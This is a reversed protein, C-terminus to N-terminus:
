GAYVINRKDKQSSNVIKLRERKYANINLHEILMKRENEAEACFFKDFFTDTNIIVDLGGLLELVLRAIEKDDLWIDNIEYLKKYAKTLYELQIPELDHNKIDELMLDRLRFFNREAKIICSIDAQQYGKQLELLAVKYLARYNDPSLRYAMRYDELAKEYNHDIKEYYRGKRYFIYARIPDKEQTRMLAKEYFDISYTLYNLDGDAIIGALIYGQIFGSDDENLQVAEKILTYGDYEKKKRLKGSLSNIKHQCMITFYRSHKGKREIQRLEEYAKCFGSLCQKVRDSDPAYFYREMMNHRVLANEVYITVLQELEDLLAANGACTKELVANLLEAKKKDNRREDLWRFGCRIDLVGDPIFGETEEAEQYSEYSEGVSKIVYIGCSKFFEAFFLFIENESEGCIININNM